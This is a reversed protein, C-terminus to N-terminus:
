SALTPTPRFVNATRDMVTEADTGSDLVTNGVAANDVMVATVNMKRAAGTELLAGVQAEFCSDSTTASLDLGVAHNTAVYNSNGATM